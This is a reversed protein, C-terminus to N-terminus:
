PLFYRGYLQDEPRPGRDRLAADPKWNEDILQGLVFVPSGMTQHITFENAPVFLHPHPSWTRWIPIDGDPSQWLPTGGAAWVNQKLQHYMGGGTPGYVTIGPVPDAIGDNTSPAHQVVAPYSWGIGTTWSMGMPNAGFAHEINRLAAERYTKKGVVEYAVLLFEARNLMAANGWGLRRDGGKWTVLYGNDDLEAVLADAQKTYWDNKILTVLKSPVDGRAIHFATWLHHDQFAYPHRGPPKTNKLLDDIGALLNEENFLLYMQSAAHIAYINLQEPQQNYTAEYKDGRGRQGIATVKANRLDNEPNSGYAWTKKAVNRLNDAIKAADGGWNTGHKDILRAAQAAAACLALTSWRERRAFGYQADPHLFSFHSRAEIMGSVGGKEDMSRIWAQMGWLAEDLVDPIGNGSEPINLQGDTFKEPALEFAYLLDYVAKFHQVSRDWDAADHWDGIVNQTVRTTDLTGAIIDFRIGTWGKPSMEADPGYGSRIFGTEYVRAHAPDVGRPWATHQATLIQGCRQHYLGRTATYFADGFVYNGDGVRFPWSRGVGPVHLYYWGNGEPQWASFDLIWLPDEGHMLRQGGPEGKVKAADGRWAIANTRADNVTFRLAGNEDASAPQTLTQPLGWLYAGFYAFKGADRLYGVQNVRVARSISESQTWNSAGSLHETALKINWAGDAKQAQEASQVLYIVWRWDTDGAGENRGKDIGVPVAMVNEPRAGNVTWAAAQQLPLEIARRAALLNQGRLNQVSKQVNWKKKDEDVSQEWEALERLYRGNTAANIHRIVADVPDVVVAAIRNSIPLAASINGERHPMDIQPTVPAHPTSDSQALVIRGADQEVVRWPADQASAAVSLLFVIAVTKVKPLYHM